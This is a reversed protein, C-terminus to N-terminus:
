PICHSFKTIQLSKLPAEIYQPKVRSAYLIQIRSFDAQSYSNQRDNEKKLTM